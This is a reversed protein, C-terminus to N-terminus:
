MEQIFKGVNGPNESDYVCYFEIGTLNNTKYKEVFKETVFTSEAPLPLSFADLTSIFEEKFSYKDISM